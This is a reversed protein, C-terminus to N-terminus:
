NLSPDPPMDALLQHWPGMSRLLDAWLIDTHPLELLNRSPKSPIWARQMLEAELQGTTWGSYGVYAHVTVGDAVARAAAERSLHSRVEVGDLEDSWYLSAFMLQEPQVPGGMFVPVEALQAFESDTLYNAVSSGLPRNLIFGDAGEAVSHGNMFLVARSFNPDQLSPDALLLSGELSIQDPDDFNLSALIEMGEALAVM